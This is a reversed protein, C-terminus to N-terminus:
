SLFYRAEQETFRGRLQRLDDLDGGNCYQMFLYFNNM